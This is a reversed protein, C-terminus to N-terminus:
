ASEPPRPLGARTNWAAISVAETASTDYGFDAAHRSMGIRCARCDINYKLGFWGSLAPLDCFPCPKLDDM